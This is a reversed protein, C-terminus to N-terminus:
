GEKRRKKGAFLKLLVKADGEIRVVRQMPIIFAQNTNADVGWISDERMEVASPDAIRKSVTDTTDNYFIKINEM